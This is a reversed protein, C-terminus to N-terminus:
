GGATCQDWEYASSACGPADFSGSLAGGAFTVDFTGRMSGTRTDYADITVTGSEAVGGAPDHCSATWAHFTVRVMGDVIPLVGPTPDAFALSLTTTSAHAGASFAGCAPAVSTLLVVRARNSGYPSSVADAVRLAVHNVEGHVVNPGTAPPSCVGGVCTLGSTCFFDASCTSGSAGCYLKQCQPPALASNCRSGSTCDLDNV